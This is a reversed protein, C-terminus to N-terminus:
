IYITNFYSLHVPNVWFINIHSFYEKIFIAFKYWSYCITDYHNNVTDITNHFDIGHVPTCDCGVIYITSFGCILVFQLIEFIISGCDAVTRLSPDFYINNRKKWPEGGNICYYLSDPINPPLPIYEQNTNHNAPATRILKYINPKYNIYSEIDSYFGRNKNGGDGIFYYDMIQKYYIISNCGITIGLHDFNNNYKALSPGTGYVIASQNKHADKFKTYLNIM